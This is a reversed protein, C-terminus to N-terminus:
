ARIATVVDHHNNKQKKQKQKQHLPHAIPWGSGESRSLNVM